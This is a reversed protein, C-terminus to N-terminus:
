NNMGGADSWKRVKIEYKQYGINLESSRLLRGNQERM